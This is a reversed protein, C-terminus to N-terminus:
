NKKSIIYLQALCGIVCFCVLVFFVQRSCLSPEDMFQYHINVVGRRGLVSVIDSYKALGQNLFTHAQSWFCAKDNQDQSPHCAMVWLPALTKQPLSEEWRHDSSDHQSQKYVPILRQNIM